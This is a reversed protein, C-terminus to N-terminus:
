DRPRPAARPAEGTPWEGARIRYLVHPALPDGPPIAHHLFDEAPDRQMGLREMVARSRENAVTTFSVIEDLGLEVFAFELAATAAETAIGRGWCDRGLRWGIEIAPAFPLQESNQPWLGVFGALAVSGPVEVAWAGFGHERFSSEIREILEDSEARSLTAPFHEMVLADANLRAFPEADAARWRRLLLRETTLTPGEGRDTASSM